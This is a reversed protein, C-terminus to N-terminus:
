RNTDAAFMWGTFFLPGLAPLAIVPVLLLGVLAERGAGVALIVSLCITAVVALTTLASLHFRAARDTPAASDTSSTM